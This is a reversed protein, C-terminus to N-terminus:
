QISVKRKEKGLTYFARKEAYMNRDMEQFFEFIDVKNFEAIGASLSVPLPADGSANYAELKCAINARINQVTELDADELLVVFEDGGYRVIVANCETAQLLINGVARLVGDGTIHGFTDNIQKFNNIDLMIGTMRKGRQVQKIIHDMYHLMYNRNYLNTLPDLFTEENQLNIYILTLGLAVSPFILALGYCLLQVVSGVFIPVLFAAVPMFLYKNTRKRYLCALIVGYIMYGYVVAYPLWFLPTRYYVNADTVGFFVDVFLNALILICVAAAPIAAIPYIRKLREHSELLKFDVYCVWLFSMTVSSFFIAANMLISLARAGAFVQGDLLFALSELACLGLCLWCMWYFIKGDYSVMRGRKRKALMIAIMLCLGLGNAVLVAPINVESVSSNMVDPM